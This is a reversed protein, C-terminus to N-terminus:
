FSVVPAWEGNKRRVIVDEVRLSDHGTYKFAHWSPRVDRSRNMLGVIFDSYATPNRDRIFHGVQELLCAFTATNPNAGSVKCNQWDINMRSYKGSVADFFVMYLSDKDVSVDHLTADLLAEDKEDSTVSPYSIKLNDKVVRLRVAHPSLASLENVHRGLFKFVHPYETEYDVDWDSFDDPYAMGLIVPRGQGRAHPWEAHRIAAVPTNMFYVGPKQMNRVSDYFIKRLGDRRISLIVNNDQGCRTAHWLKRASHDMRSKIM